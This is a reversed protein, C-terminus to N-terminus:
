RIALTAAMDENKDYQKIVKADLSPKGTILAGKMTNLVHFFKKNFPVSIVKIRKHQILHVINDICHFYYIKNMARQIKYEKMIEINKIWIEKDINTLHPISQIYKIKDEIKKKYINCEETIYDEVNHEHQQLLTHLNVEELSKHDFQHSHSPKKEYDNDIHKLIKFASLLYVYKDEKNSKYVIGKHSIEVRPGVYHLKSMLIGKTYEIANELFPAM